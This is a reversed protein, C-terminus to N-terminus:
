HEESWQIMEDQVYKGCKPCEIVGDHIELGCSSCHYWLNSYCEECIGIEADEAKLIKNCEECRKPQCNKCVGGEEVAPMGDGNKCYGYLPMKFWVGNNFDPSPLSYVIPIKTGDSDVIYEYESGDITLTDKEEQMEREEKTEKKSEKTKKSEKKEDIDKDRLNEEVNEDKNASSREEEFFKSKNVEKSYDIEKTVNNGCGVLSFLGILLVVIFKM